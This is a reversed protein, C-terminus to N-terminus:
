RILRFVNWFPGRCGKLIEAGISAMCCNDILWCCHHGLFASQSFGQIQSFYASPPFRIRMMLKSPQAVM